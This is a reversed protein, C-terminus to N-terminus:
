AHQQEERKALQLILQVEGKNMGAAKAIQEVSKGKEYMGLLEAYRGRITTPVTDPEPRESREPFAEGAKEGTPIPHVEPDPSAEMSRSTGSPEVPAPPLPSATSPPETPTASMRPQESLSKMQQELEVIRRGLTEVTGDHEQKFKAVADLLERNEAELDEMLRQYAEESVAEQEPGSVSKPKMWAFGFIAAGLAVMYFWPDM